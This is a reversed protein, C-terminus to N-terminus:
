TGNRIVLARVMMVTYALLLGFALAIPNLWSSRVLFYFLASIPIYKAGMLAWIARQHGEKSFFREVSEEVGRLVGISLLGGVDFSECVSRSFELLLPSILILVLFSAIYTQRLVKKSRRDLRGM